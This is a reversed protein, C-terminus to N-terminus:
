LNLPHPFCLRTESSSDLHTLADSISNVERLGFEAAFRDLLRTEVRHTHLQLVAALPLRRGEFHGFLAEQMDPDRSASVTHHLQARLESTSANSLAGQTSFPALPGGLASATTVPVVVSPTLLVGLHLDETEEETLALLDPDQTQLVFNQIQNARLNAALLVLQDADAATESSLAARLAATEQHVSAIRNTLTDIREQLVGCAALHEKELEEGQATLADITGKLSELKAAYEQTKAADCELRHQDHKLELRLKSIREEQDRHLQEADHQDAQLQQEEETTLVHLSNRIPGSRVDRISKKRAFSQLVAPPPGPGLPAAVAPTPEVVPLMIKANRTRGESRKAAPRM